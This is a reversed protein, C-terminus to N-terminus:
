RIRPQDAVKIGLAPMGTYSSKHPQIVGSLAEGSQSKMSIFQIYVEFSLREFSESRRLSVFVFIREM